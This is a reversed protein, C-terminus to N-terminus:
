NTAQKSYIQSGDRRNRLNWMAIGVMSFFEMVMRESAPSPIAMNLKPIDHVDGILVLNFCALKYNNQQGPSNMAMCGFSMAQPVEAAVELMAIRKRQPGATMAAADAAM